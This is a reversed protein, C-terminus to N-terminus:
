FESPSLQIVFAARANDDNVTSVHLIPVAAACYNLYQAVFPFTAPEIGAPTLPNKMSM